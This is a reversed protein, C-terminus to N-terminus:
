RSRRLLPQRMKVALDRAEEADRMSAYGAGLPYGHITLLYRRKPASWRIAYTVGDKIGQVGLRTHASSHM